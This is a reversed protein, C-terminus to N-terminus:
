FLPPSFSLCFTIQLAERAVCCRPPPAYRTPMLHNYNVVKVFPKLKSRKAQTKKSMRKTVSLPPKAIGAVLAHGYPRVADSSALPSLPAHAHQLEAGPPVPFRGGCRVRPVVDSVPRPQSRPQLRETCHLSSSCGRCGAVADAHPQIFGVRCLPWDRGRCTESVRHAGPTLEGM